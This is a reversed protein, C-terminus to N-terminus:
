IHISGSYDRLLTEVAEHSRTRFYHFLVIKYQVYHGVMVWMYSKSSASKGQENLVQVTTEDMNFLPGERSKDRLLQIFDECKASVNLAWNCMTQRSIEIDLRRFIREQRYFPLSDAFKSVIVHSLLSPTAISGPIIRAPAPSTIVSKTEEADQKDCPIPGYKYRIHRNVQIKAPIFELEETVEKGIVPRLLTCSGYENCEANGCKREEETLGHEIENRPLNDPLPKRGPKCRDYSSVKIKQEPEPESETEKITSVTEAEDFMTLQIKDEDTWKESKCAFRYMNLLRVQESLQENSERLAAIERDKQFLLRKLEEVDDPINKNKPAM